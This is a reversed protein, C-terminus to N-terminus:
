GQKRERLRQRSLADEIECIVEEVGFPKKLCKTIGFLGMLPVYDDKFYGTMAIIPIHATDQFHKIEDAVQFGSKAPMKLDLLILDPKNKQCVELALSADHVATMEYGSLELSEGLEELFEKDDDVILIKTNKTKEQMEELGM